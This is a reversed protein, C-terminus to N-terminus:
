YGVTLCEWSLSVRAFGGFHGGLVFSFIWKLKSLLGLTIQVAILVLCPIPWTGTVRTLGTGQDTPRDMCILEIGEVRQSYEKSVTENCGGFRADICGYGLLKRARGCCVARM